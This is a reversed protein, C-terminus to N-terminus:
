ENSRTALLRLENSIRDPRGTGLEMFSLLRSFTRPAMGIFKFGIRNEKAHVVVAQFDLVTGAPLRLKMLCHEGQKAPKRLDCCALLGLLSIDLMEGEHERDDINLHLKTRFPMRIFNRRLDM